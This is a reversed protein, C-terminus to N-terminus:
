EPGATRFIASLAIAGHDIQPLGSDGTEGAGADLRHRGARVARADALVDILFGQALGPLSVFNNRARNRRAVTVGFSTAGFHRQPRRSRLAPYRRRGMATGHHATDRLQLASRAPARGAATRGARSRVGSVQAVFNVYNREHFNPGLDHRKFDAFFNRVLFSNAGSTARGTARGDNRGSGRTSRSQPRGALHRDRVHQQVSQGAGSQSRDRPRCRAPRPRDDPEPRSLEHLGVQTFLIRGLTAEVSPKGIAPKFYNLLYFEMFDVISVPIENTVGDGDVDASTSQVPANEIFDVTGDLVMGAPTM